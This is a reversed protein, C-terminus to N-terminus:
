EWTAVGVKEEIEEMLREYDEMRPGVVTVKGFKRELAKIFKDLRYGSRKALEYLIDQTEESIVPTVRLWTLFYAKDPHEMAFADMLVREAESGKGGTWRELDWWDYGVEFKALLSEIREYFEHNVEKQEGVLDWEFMIEVKKGKNDKFSVTLYPIGFKSKALALVRGLHERARMLRLRGSVKM